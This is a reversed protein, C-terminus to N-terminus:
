YLLPGSPLYQEPRGFPATTLFHSFGTVKLGSRLAFRLATHNAGAVNLGVTEAQGAAHRLALTVLADGCAPELWAAAGVTGSRAYYYGVPRSGALVQMGDFGNAMWYRHDLERATGRLVRDLGTAISLNLPETRYGAPAEPLGAGPGAFRYVPYGPLMGLKLYAGQAPLDTSAWVCFIHAGAAAGAEKVRRLLPGGIGQQQLEPRAWFGSLFWIDDRVIACALAAIRGDVEAVEFIGTQLLHEYGTQWWAREADTVPPPTQGLRATMENRATLYVAVAEPLDATQLPRYRVDAM